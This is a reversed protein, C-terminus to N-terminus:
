TLVLTTQRVHTLTLNIIVVVFQITSHTVSILNKLALEMPQMVPTKPVSIDLIVIMTQNVTVKHDEKVNEMVKLMLVLVLQKVIMQMHKDMVVVFQPTFRTASKPAIMVPVRLPIPQMVHTKKAITDLIVIMTQNVNVKHDEKVNEMVKLMLVLVLQKVLMQMHKDMVGVFKIMNNM